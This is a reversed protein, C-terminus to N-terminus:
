VEDVVHKDVFIGGVSSHHWCQCPGTGLRICQDNAHPSIPKCLVSSSDTVHSPFTFCHTRLLLFKLDSHVEAFARRRYRIVDHIGRAFRPSNSPPILPPHGPAIWRLNWESNSPPNQYLIRYFISLPKSAAHSLSIHRLNSQLNTFTPWVCVGDCASSEHPWFCKSARSSPALASTSNLCSICSIPEGVNGCKAVRAKENCFFPKSALSFIAVELFFAWGCETVRAIEMQPVRKPLGTLYHMAFPSRECFNKVRVWERTIKTPALRTQLGPMMSGLVLSFLFLKSICCMSKVDCVYKLFNACVFCTCDKSM